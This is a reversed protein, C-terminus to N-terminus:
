KFYNSRIQHSLAGNSKIILDQIDKAVKGSQALLYDKDEGLIESMKIITEEKANCKGNELACIFAPTVNIKKAFQRLTINQQRRRQKIFSGFKNM